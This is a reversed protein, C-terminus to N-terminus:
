RTMHELEPFPQYTVDKCAERANDVVRDLRGERFLVLSDKSPTYQGDSKRASYRLCVSTRQAGEVTRLGPESIFADRVGVPNNLYTHMFAVIDTRYNTAPAMTNVSRAHDRADLWESSCGSLVLTLAVALGSLSRARIM